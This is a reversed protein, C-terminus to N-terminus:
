YHGIIGKTQVWRQCIVFVIFGLIFYVLSNAILIILSYNAICTLLTCKNFILDRIVIIGQTTPLTKSIFQLWNPMNEIPLISGNLFLLASTILYAFSQTKKFIIGFGAVILSFGIIGIITIIFAILSAFNFPIYAGSILMLTLLILINQLTWFPMSAIYRIILKLYFPNPTLFLQELVGTQSSESIFYTTDWIFMYAYFWVFYGITLPAIKEPVISGNDILLMWWLFDLISTFTDALTSWKYYKYMTKMLHMDNFILMLFQYIYNFIKKM